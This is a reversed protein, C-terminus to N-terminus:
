IRHTCAVRVTIRSEREETSVFEELDTAVVLATRVVSGFPTGPDSWSRLSDEILAAIAFARETLTQHSERTPSVCSVVIDQVWEEERRRQGMAASVQTARAGGLWVWEREPGAPAPVGYTVQVTGLASDLRTYLAAKFAPITSHTTTV